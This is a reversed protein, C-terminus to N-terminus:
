RTRQGPITDFFSQRRRYGDYEKGAMTILEVCSKHNLEYIQVRGDCGFNQEFWEGTLEWSGFVDALM